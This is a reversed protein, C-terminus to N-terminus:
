RATDHGHALMPSPVDARIVPLGYAKTVGPLTTSPFVWVLGDTLGARELRDRLAHLPALEAFEGVDAQPDATTLDARWEEQMAAHIQRWHTAKIARAVGSRTTLSAEAGDPGRLHVRWPESDDHPLVLYRLAEGWTHGFGQGLLAEDDQRRLVANWPYASQMSVPDKPQAPSLRRAALDGLALLLLEGGTWNGRRARELEVALNVPVHEEVGLAHAIRRAARLLEENKRDSM